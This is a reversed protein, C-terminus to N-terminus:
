DSGRVIEGLQNGAMTSFGGILGGIVATIFVLLFSGPMFLEKEGFIIAAIKTSFMSGNEWDMWWAMGGWLFFLAIFGALFARAPPRPSGFLKRTRKEALLLGILGGAIAGSWWPLYLSALWSVVAILVTRLIFKMM